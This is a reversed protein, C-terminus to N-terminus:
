VILDYLSDKAPFEMKYVKLSVYFDYFEIVDLNIDLKFFIWGQLDRNEKIINIVYVKTMLTLLFVEM